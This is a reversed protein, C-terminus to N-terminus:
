WLRPVADVAGAELELLFRKREVGGGYGTLGGDGGVVRHCPVVIGVPNRGNAAGVARAAGAGLGLSAALRGYSWTVGAPIGRLATWVRRQFETGGLAVPVAAFDVVEGAFYAGLVERVPGFASADRVGFVSSDPRYRQRPMYLGCLVGDRAVVTLDGVPSAVVDHTV